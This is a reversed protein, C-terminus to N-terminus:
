ETTQRNRVLYYHTSHDSLGGLERFTTGTNGGDPTGIVTNAGTTFLPDGV